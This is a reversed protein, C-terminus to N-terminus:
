LGANTWITDIEANSFESLEPVTIDVAKNTIGLATGNVKVTEIVNVQAGSAINYLKTYDSSTMLGNNSGSANSYTTNTDKYYPIGNIIPVPTYGTTNTVTSTTKVGGLTSSATPLTYNSLGALKNKETTTYDNTSLGKGSVKDVKNNISNTLETKDATFLVGVNKAETALNATKLYGTLDPQTSGILEFADDVWIYEDHVDPAEANKPVLYITGAAGTDPLTDVVSYVISTVGGFTKSVLDSVYSKTSYLNSDTLEEVKTPVTIKVVRNKVVEGNNVQIGEVGDLRTISSTWTDATSNYNLKISCLGIYNSNSDMSPAITEFPISTASWGGGTNALHFKLTDFTVATGENNTGTFNSVYLSATENITIAQVLTCNDVLSSFAKTSWNLTGYMPYELYAIKGDDIYSTTRGNFNIEEIVNKQANDEIKDLRSKDTSSMLGNASTTATSYTTNTDKYYPVGNIIPVPTYGSASNVTSTTKVGGLTTGATPLTYNNAKEAIGALKNKETTTYDNTSLSKGDVKDVKKALDTSLAYNNLKTKLLQLLYLLSNESLYKIAM